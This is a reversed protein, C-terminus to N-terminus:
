FNGPCNYATGHVTVIKSLGDETKEIADLHVYNAGFRGAINRLQAKAKEPDAGTYWSDSAEVTKLETCGPPPEAHMLAVKQGESTVSSACSWTLLSLIFPLFNLARM